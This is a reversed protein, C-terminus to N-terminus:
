NFPAASNVNEAHPTLSMLYVIDEILLLCFKNQNERTEQKWTNKDCIIMMVNSCHTSNVTAM